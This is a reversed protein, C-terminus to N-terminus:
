ISGVVLLVAGIWFLVLPLRGLDRGSTGGGRRRRSRASSDILLGAYMLAIGLVQMAVVCTGERVRRAARRPHDSSRGVRATDLADAPQRPPSGADDREVIHEGCAPRTPTIRAFDIPGEM